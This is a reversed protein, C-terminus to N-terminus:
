SSVEKSHERIKDAVKLTEGWITEMMDPFQKTVPTGSAKLAAIYVDAVTRLCSQLEISRREEPSKPKGSFGGGSKQFGNGAGKLAVSVLKKDWGQLEYSVVVQDGIKIGKLQEIAEPLADTILCHKAQGQWLYEYELVPVDANAKTVKGSGNKIEPM